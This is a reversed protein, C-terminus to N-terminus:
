KTIVMLRSHKVGDARLTAVYVGSPAPEGAEDRGDWHLARDRAAYDGEPLRAARLTRLLGGDLAHITVIVDSTRALRFPIWTEPNFPSPYNPLLETRRLGGWRLLALGRADVSVPVDARLIDSLRYLGTDGEPTRAIVHDGDQTFEWPWLDMVALLGGSNMDHFRTVREGGWDREHVGILGGRPHIHVADFPAQPNSQRPAPMLTRRAGTVLSVIEMWSREGPFSAVRAQVLGLPTEAVRGISESSLVIEGSEVDWVRVGEYRGNVILQSGDATFRLDGMPADASLSRLRTGTTADHMTLHTGAAALRRGDPSFAVQWVWVGFTEVQYLHGLSDMDYVHAQDNTILALKSEDQNTVLEHPPFQLEISGRLSGTDADWVHVLTDNYSGTVLLGRTPVRLAYSAHSWGRDVVRVREMTRADWFIVRADNVATAVTLGDPAVAVSEVRNWGGPYQGGWERGVTVADSSMADLDVVHLHGWPDGVYARAGDPSLAIADVSGGVDRQILTDTAVREGSAVRWTALRDRGLRSVVRVPDDVLGIWVPGLKGSPGAVRATVTRSAVDWLIAGEDRTLTGLTAGAADLAIAHLSTEAPGRPPRWGKARAAAREPDAELYAEYRARSVDWLYLTNDRPHAVFAFLDTGPIFLGDAVDMATQGLPAGTGANWFRAPGKLCAMTAGDRSYVVRYGGPELVDRVEGSAVDLLEISRVTAIALTRGDPSYAIDRISPGGVRVLPQPTAAISAAAICAMTAVLIPRQM